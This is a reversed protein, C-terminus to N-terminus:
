PGHPGGAPPAPAHLHRRAPTGYSYGLYNLKEDGLAQRMVDLGRAVNNTGVWPLLKDANRGCRKSRMSESAAYEKAEQATEPSADLSNNLKDERRDSEGCDVPETLGVGRPDFAVLDYRRNLQAQNQASGALKATGTARCARSPRRRCRPRSRRM